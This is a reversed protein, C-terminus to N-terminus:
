AAPLCDWGLQEVIRSLIKGKVPMM